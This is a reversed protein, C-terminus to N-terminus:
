ALHHRGHRYKDLSFSAHLTFKGAYENIAQNPNNAGGGHLAVVVFSVFKVPLNRDLLRRYPYRFRGGRARSRYGM